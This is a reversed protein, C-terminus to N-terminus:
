QRFKVKLKTKAGNRWLTLTVSNRPSTGRLASKLDDVTNIPKGAYALIVDSEVIGARAAALNSDVTGVYLGSPADTKVGAAIAQAVPLAHIGLKVGSMDIQGSRVAEPAQRSSPPLTAQSHLQATGDESWRCASAIKSRLEAVSVLDFAADTPAGDFGFVRFFLKGKDPLSKIFAIGSPSFVRNGTSSPTWRMDFPKGEDLRYVVRRMDHIGLFSSTNVYAETRKEECSLGLSASRDKSQLVGSIQPSGDLPSKSETISWVESASVNVDHLTESDAQTTPANALAPEIPTRGAIRDPSNEQEGIKSELDRIARELATRRKALDDRREPDHAIHNGRADDVAKLDLLLVAGDTIGHSVSAWQHFLGSTVSVTRNEGAGLEGRLEYDFAGHVWPVSRGPTQLTGDVFIRKVAVTSNNAITFAM